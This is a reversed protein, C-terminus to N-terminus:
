LLPEKVLSLWSCEKWVDQEIATSKLERERQKKERDKKGLEKVSTRKKHTFSLLNPAKNIYPMYFVKPNFYVNPGGPVDHLRRSNLAKRIITGHAATLFHM